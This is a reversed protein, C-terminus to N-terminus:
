NETEAKKKSEFDEKVNKMIRERTEKLFNRLYQEDRRIRHCLEFWYDYDVGMPFHAPILHEPEFRYCMKFVHIKYDGYRQIFEAQIEKSNDGSIVNALSVILLLTMLLRYTKM